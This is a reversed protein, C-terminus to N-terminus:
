FLDSRRGNFPTRPFLDLAPESTTLVIPPQAGPAAATGAVVPEGPQLNRAAVRGDCPAQVTTYRIQDLAMRRAAVASRLRARAVVVATTAAQLRTASAKGEMLAQAATAERAVALRLQAEKEQVEAARQEVGRKHETADLTFLLDGRRVRQGPSVRVREAIGSVRPWIRIQRDGASVTERDTEVGDPAPTATPVAPPPAAPLAVLTPTLAANSETALEPAPDTVPAASPWAFYAAFVLGALALTAALAIAVRSVLAPWAASVPPDERRAPLNAPKSPQSARDVRSPPLAPKATV